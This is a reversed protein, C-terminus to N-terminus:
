PRQGNGTAARKWSGATLTGRQPLGVKTEFQRWYAEGARWTQVLRGDGDLAVRKLATAAVRARGSQPEVPAKSLEFAERGLMGFVGCGGAGGLPASREPDVVQAALLEGGVAYRLVLREQFRNEPITRVEVRVDKGTRETVEFRLRFSPIWGGPAAATYLPQQELQVEWWDGRAWREVPSSASAAPALTAALLAAVGLQWVARKTAKM